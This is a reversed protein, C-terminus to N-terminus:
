EIESQQFEAWIATMFFVASTSGGGYGVLSGTRAILPIVGGGSNVDWKASLIQLGSTVADSDILGSQRVLEQFNGATLPDTGNASYTHRAVASAANSSAFNMNLPTLGTSTGNAVDINSAAWMMEHVGLTTAGSEAAALLYLPLLILSDSAARIAMEPQDADIAAHGAIGTTVSGANTGFVKGEMVLALAWPATFLAGDRTGRAGVFNTDRGRSVSSQGALLRFDSM